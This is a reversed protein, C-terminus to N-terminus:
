DGNRLADRITEVNARMMGIYSDTGSGPAGIAGSYLQHTSAGTEESVVEALKDSVTAEIFIAPVKQNNIIEILDRLDSASPESGTSFSPIVTGVVEFGYAKAFYAFSDHNTVLKRNAAPIAAVSERIFEDLQELEADYAAANAEYKSLHNPDLQGLVAEINHTWREVKAVDFWVHPDEAHDHGGEEEEAEQEESEQAAIPEIGASVEILPVKEAAGQLEALLSEELGFGSVFIVHAKAATGLDRASSQYSHPDQGPEMLVTLE